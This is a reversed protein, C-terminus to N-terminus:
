KTSNARRVCRSKLSVYVAAAPNPAKARTLRSARHSLLILHVASCWEVSCWEPRCSRPRLWEDVCCASSRGKDEEFERDFPTWSAAGTSRRTTFFNWEGARACNRDPTRIRRWLGALADRPMQERLKRGKRARRLHPVTLSYWFIRLKHVSYQPCNQVNEICSSM